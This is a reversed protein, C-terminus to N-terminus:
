DSRRVVAYVTCGVTSSQGGSTTFQLNDGDSVPLFLNQVSAAAGEYLVTSTFTGLTSTVIQAFTSGTSNVLHSNGSVALTMGSTVVSNPVFGVETVFGRYPMPLYSKSGAPTGGVPNFSTITQTGLSQKEAYPM